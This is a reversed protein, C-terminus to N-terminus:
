KLISMNIIIYDYWINIIFIQYIQILLLWVNLDKNIIKLIPQFEFSM